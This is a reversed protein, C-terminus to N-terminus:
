MWSPIFLERSQFEGVRLEDSFVAYSPWRVRTTSLVHAVPKADLDIEVVVQSRSLSAFMYRGDGPGAITREDAAADAWARQWGEARPPRSEGLVVACRVRLM